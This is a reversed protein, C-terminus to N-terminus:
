LLPERYMYAHVFGRWYCGRPVDFYTTLRTLYIIIKIKVPIVETVPILRLSRSYVLLSHSVSYPLIVFITTVLSNVRLILELKVISWFSKSGKTNHLQKFHHSVPLAEECCWRGKGLFDIYNRTTEHLKKYNRTKHRYFQHWNTPDTMINGLRAGLLISMRVRHLQAWSTFQAAPSVEHFSDSPDTGQM